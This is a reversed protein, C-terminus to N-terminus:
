KEAPVDYLVTLSTPWPTSFQSADPYAFRLDPRSADKFRTLRGSNGPARRVNEFTFVARLVEGIIKVTLQEGLHTFLSDGQLV